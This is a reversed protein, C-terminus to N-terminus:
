VEPYIHPFYLTNYPFPMFVTLFDIFIYYSKVLLFMCNSNSKGFHYPLPTLVKTSFYYIQLPDPTLPGSEVMIGFTHLYKQNVEQPHTPGIRLKHCKGFTGEIQCLTWVLLVSGRGITYWFYPFRVLTLRGPSRNGRSGIKKICKPNYTRLAM